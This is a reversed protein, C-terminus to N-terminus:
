GVHGDGRRLEHAFGINSMLNSRSHETPGAVQWLEVLPKFRTGWGPMEHALAADHPALACHPVEILW